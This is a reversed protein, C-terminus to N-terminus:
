ITLKTHTHTHTHAHTPPHTHEHRLLLRFCCPQIVVSFLFNVNAHNSEKRLLKTEKEKKLKLMIRTATSYFYSQTDNQINHYQIM